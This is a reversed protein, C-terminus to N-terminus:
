MKFYAVLQQLIEAQSNLEESSAATEQSVASNSQVVQSIQQLGVSIQSIADAQEISANSINNIIESIEGAGQVIVDLSESTTSAIGAGSEVRSISEQILGTTETAAQQSRAALSRVEEAVVAFGKGHEGARAAEVAANLALLNTQFAIDQITKIIKSINHSSEKIQEMATLMHKMADNGERANATSKGSLSNADSANTANQKTQQNVLDVSANLEQISSAQTQAGNALDMASSSIQKAGSLVQSSSSSIESMTRNLTSSINNVSSKIADFEGKFDSTISVRLDGGAVAALTKDIEGIYGALKAIVANVNGQIAKFDGAYHGQITKDFYGEGLRNMAEKIETIPANVAEALSNLGKMIDRWGGHYKSEDIHVSLDGKVAAADILFSIEGSVAEIRNRMDNVADNLKAKKGPLKEMDAKFNGGAIEMFTSVVKDQTDLTSKLMENIKAAVTGYEGQFENAHIFTDIEGRAHDDAMEDMDHILKQLTAVMSRTSDALMGMEDKNKVNINTSLRGNAIDSIAGVMNNVPETIVRTIVFAIVIAAVIAIVAIVILTNISSAVAVEIDIRSQNKIGRIEEFMVEFYTDIYDNRDLSDYVFTRATLINNGMSANLIAHVENTSYDLILREIHNLQSMRTNRADAALNEDNILNQRFAEATTVLEERLTSIDAYLSNIEGFNGTYLAMLAAHHRMDTTIMDIEGMYLYRQVPGDLVGRYDDRVQNITVIGYITIFALLFLILGFGVFLKAGIRINRLLSM